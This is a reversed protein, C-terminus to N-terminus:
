AAKRRRMFGVGAFGLGLLALTAPEPVSTVRELTWLGQDGQYTVEDVVLTWSGNINTQMFLGSELSFQIDAPGSIGPGPLSGSASLLLDATSAGGGVSWKSDLASGGGAESKQPAYTESVTSFSISFSEGAGSCAPGVCRGTFDYIYAAHAAAGALLLAVAVSGLLKSKM